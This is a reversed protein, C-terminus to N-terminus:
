RAVLEPLRARYVGYGVVALVLHEGDPTLEMNHAVNDRIFFEGIDPLGSNMQTWSEGQDPSVWVGRSSSVYLVRSDRPDIVLMYYEAEKPLGNTISSWNQGGDTSRM